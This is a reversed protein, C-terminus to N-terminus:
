TFVSTSAGPLTWVGRGFTAAILVNDAANYVLDTVVVNPLGTGVPTWNAEPGSAQRFVGNLGGVLVTSDGAINPTTDILQLSRITNSTLTGLNTTVNRFAIRTVDPTFWVLDGRIVWVRRWDQPDVVISRIPGVGGVAVGRFGGQPGRFLLQGLTTGAFAVQAEDKGDLRGGYVLASIRGLPRPGVLQIVDGALGNAPNPDNDEYLFNYGILMLRPDVTNLVYPILDFNEFNADEPRLGSRDPANIASRLHV